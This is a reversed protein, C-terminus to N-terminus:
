ASKTIWKTASNAFFIDLPSKNLTLCINEMETETFPTWGNLKRSFTTYPMNISAAVERPRKGSEIIAAKLRLNAKKM